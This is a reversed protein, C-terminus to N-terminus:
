KLIEANELFKCRDRRQEHRFCTRTQFFLLFFYAFPPARHDSHSDLHSRVEEQPTIYKVMSLGCPLTLTIFSPDLLYLINM